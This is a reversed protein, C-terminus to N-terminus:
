SNVLKRASEVLKDRLRLRAEWYTRGGAVLVGTADGRIWRVAALEPYRDSKIHDKSHPTYAREDVLAGALLEEPSECHNYLADLFAVASDREVVEDYTKDTM